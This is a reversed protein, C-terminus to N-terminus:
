KSEEKKMFYENGRIIISANDKDFNKITIPLMYSPVEKDGNWGEYSRGVMIGKTISITNGSIEVEKIYISRNISYREAVLESLFESSTYICYNSYNYGWGSFSFTKNNGEWTTNEIYTLGYAIDDKKYSLAKGTGLSIGAWSEDNSLTVEWQWSGIITSLINTGANFTWYGSEKIGGVKVHVM